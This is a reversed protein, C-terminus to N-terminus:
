AEAPAGQKRFPCIGKAKRGLADGCDSVLDGIVDRHIYLLAGCAVVAACFVIKKVPM